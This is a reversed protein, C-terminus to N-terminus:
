QNNEGKTKILCVMEVFGSQNNKSKIIAYVAPQVSINVQKRGGKIPTQKDPPPLDSNDLIAQNIDFQKNRLVEIAEPALRLSIKRHRLEPPKLPKTRRYQAYKGRKKGPKSGTGPRKGGWNNNIM